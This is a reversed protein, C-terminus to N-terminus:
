NTTEEEVPVITETENIVPEEKRIITESSHRIIEEERGKIKNYFIVTSTTTYSQLWLLGIGLTLISLIGWGLFSLGLLCLENKHGMMMAKSKRMADAPAINSDEAMIFFTMSYGLAAIIGPIILLLSWLVVYVMILANAIFTRTFYSFGEFLQGIDVPEHHYIRLFIRAISYSLPGGILISIVFQVPYSKIVFGPVMTILLYILWIPVCTGWMGQMTSRAESRIESLVM